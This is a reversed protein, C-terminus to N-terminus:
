IEADAPQITWTVPELGEFNGLSAIAEQRLSAVDKDPTELALAQRLLSGVRERYGETRALRLARAEGVLSRYLTRNAEDRQRVAGGGAAGRGGRVPRRRHPHRRRRGGRRGGRPASGGDRGPGGARPQPPVLAVTAGRRYEAASPDAPGGPLPAPGGGGGRGD